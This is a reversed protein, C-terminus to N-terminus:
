VREILRGVATEAGVHQVRIRLRGALVVTGAYVQDGTNRIVPMSEGTIPAENVTGSGSEVRGDVAIRKGAHVVILDGPVICEVSTQVEVDGSVLWIEGEEIELLARIARRTRQLVLSQLYEGINLLWIVTLATVSEGLVISALTASSVLTDTTLPRGATLTRLGGRLFPLGTILTAGAVILMLWPQGTFVAAGTVLRTLLVGALTFGGLYVHRVREAIEDQGHGHDCSGGHDHGHPHDHVCADNHPRIRIPRPIDRDPPLRALADRATRELTLLDAAAADYEVLVSGTVANVHVSRVGDIASLDTEVIEGRQPQHHLLPAYWRVRGPLVCRRRLSSVM